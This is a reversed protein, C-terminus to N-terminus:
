EHTKHSVGAIELVKLAANFRLKPDGFATMTHEITDLAKEVLGGVRQIMIQRSEEATLYVLEQYDPLNKWRSVTEQRVNLQQSIKKCSFGKAALIAGERQQNTLANYIATIDSM